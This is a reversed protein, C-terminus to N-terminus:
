RLHLAKSFFQVAVGAVETHVARRDTGSPDTCREPSAAKGAATCVDLFNAYSAQPLITERAGHLATKGSDSPAGGPGSGGRVVEVPVHVRHLSDPTLTLTYSPEMAFVAKLRADHFDDGSRALSEGSSRRAQELLVSPAPGKPNEPAHCAAAEPQRRCLDYLAAVDTRAGALALVTYGGVAFGAAGVRERDIHSGLEPDALLGDLVESLDTAREWWLVSGEPTIGTVANDGPHDVAAAVFGARALRTGLWALQQAADGSGHSLLILPFPSLSPAFAAHPSAMGAEFLPPDALGVFQAEEHSSEAAPYWVTVHLRHTAAGRWNRRATPEIDRTVVGAKDPQPGPGKQALAPGIRGLLLTGLCLFALRSPVRM